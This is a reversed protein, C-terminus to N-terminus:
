QMWDTLWWCEGTEERQVEWYGNRTRQHIFTKLGLHIGAISAIPATSQADLSGQRLSLVVSSVLLQIAPPSTQKALQYDFQKEVWVFVSRNAESQVESGPSSTLHFISIIYKLRVMEQEEGAERLTTISSQKDMACHLLPPHVEVKGPLNALGSLVREEIKNCQCVNM